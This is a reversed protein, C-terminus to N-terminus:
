IHILSLFVLSYSVLSVAAPLFIATRFFGKFKLNPNNLLNALVMALVLMIPVQIILYIFTNFLTLKFIPDQFLRAYNAWLPEGWTMRSGKGTQLSLIFAQFMPYFSMIAILTAAPILFAWGTLNRRTPPSM